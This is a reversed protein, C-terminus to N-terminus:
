NGLIGRMLLEDEDNITMDQSSPSRVKREEPEPSERSEALEPEYGSFRREAEFSAGRHDNSGRQDYSARHDNDRPQTNRNLQSTSSSAGLVRRDKYRDKKGHGHNRTDRDDDDYERGGGMGGRRDEEDDTIGSGRRYQHDREDRNNNRRENRRNNDRDSDYGGRDDYSEMRAHRPRADYADTYDFSQPVEIISPDPLGLATTAPANPAPSASRINM